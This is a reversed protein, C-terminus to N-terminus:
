SAKKYQDFFKDINKENLVREQKGFLITPDLEKTQVLWTNGYQEFDYYATSFCTFLLTKDSNDTTLQLNKDIGEYVGSDTNPHLKISFPISSKKCIEKLKDVVRIEIVSYASDISKARQSIFIVRELSTLGDVSRTSPYVCSTSEFNNFKTYFNQQSENFFTAQTASFYPSYRGIGHARFNVEIGSDILGRNQIFSLPEVDDMVFIKEVGLSTIEASTISTAHSEFEFFSILNPNLAFKIFKKVSYRYGYFIIKKNQAMLDRVFKVQRIPNLLFPIVLISFDSEKWEDLKIWSYYNVDVWSKIVVPSKSKSRILFLIRFFKHILIKFFVKLVFKWPFRLKSLNLSDLKSLDGGTLTHYYQYLLNTIGERETATGDYFTEDVKSKILCIFSLSQKDFFM